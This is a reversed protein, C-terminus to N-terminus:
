FFASTYIYFYTYNDDSNGSVVWKKIICFHLLLPIQSLLVSALARKGNYNATQIGEIQVNEYSWNVIIAPNNLVIRGEKIRDALIRKMRGTSLRRRLFSEQAIIISPVDFLRINENGKIIAESNM